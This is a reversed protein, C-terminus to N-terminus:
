IESWDSTPASFYSSGFDWSELGPYNQSEEKPTGPFLAIQIYGGSLAAFFVIHPFTTDDGLDPGHHIFHTWTGIAQGLV